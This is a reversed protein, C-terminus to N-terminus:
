KPATVKKGPEAEVERRSGDELAATMSETLYSMESPSLSYLLELTIPDVVHEPNKFHEAEEYGRSLACIIKLTNELQRIMDKDEIVAQIKNIDGNPCLKAIDRSAGVTLKLGYNKGYLNM